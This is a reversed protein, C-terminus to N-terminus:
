PANEAATIEGGRLSDHKYRESHRNRSRLVRLLTLVVLLLVIYLGGPIFSGFSPAYQVLILLVTALTVHDFRLGPRRFILYSLLGTSIALPSFFGFIVVGIVGFDAHQEVAGGFAPTYSSAALNPFFIENVHLIGYIFPKDPWIVRPVYAWLSSIAVEGHFLAVENNLYGRYYDAANKFYDFYGVIYGLEFISGLDIFTSYWCVWFYQAILVL